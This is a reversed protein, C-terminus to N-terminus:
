ASPPFPVAADRLATLAPGDPWGRYRWLPPDYGTPELADGALRLAQDWPVAIPPVPDDNDGLLVYDAQPLLGDTVQRVWGAWSWFHGDDHQMLTHGAVFVDEGAKDFLDELRAKQLQYEVAALLHRAEDVLPRAPHGAPPDWPRLGDPTVLYPVPSLQRVAEKYESLAKGLLDVTLAHRDTDVLALHDRDAAVAIVTGGVDAAIRALVDPVALWSSIYGDPGLVFAAGAMTGVQVPGQSLNETAQRLAEDESVGWASLDSETAFSMAHDSDIVCQLSVFPLLRRRLVEPTAAAWSASRVAPMLRPAAQAWSQPRPQPAMGLVASSLRSTREEGTLGQSERYINGLYMTFPSDSGGTHIELSFDPLKRVRAGLLSRALRAVEDAFRDEASGGGWRRLWSM